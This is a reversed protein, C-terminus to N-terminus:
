KSRSDRDGHSPTTHGQIVPINALAAIKQPSNCITVHTCFDHIVELDMVLSGVGDKHIKTSNCNSRMMARKKREEWRKKSVNGTTTTNTTTAPVLIDLLTLKAIEGQSVLKDRFRQEVEYDKVLIGVENPAKATPKTMMKVDDHSPKKGSSRRKRPNKKARKPSPIPAKYLASSSKSSNPHRKLNNYLPILPKLLSAKSKDFANVLSDEESSCADHTVFRRTVNPPSDMAMPNNVMPTKQPLIDFFDDCSAPTVLVNRQDSGRRAMVRRILADELDDQEEETLDSDLEVSRVEMRKSSKKNATSDKMKSQKSLPSNTPSKPSSSDKGSSHKASSKDVSNHTM